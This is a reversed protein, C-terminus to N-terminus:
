LFVSGQGLSSLRIKTTICHTPTLSMLALHPSSPLPQECFNSLPPMHVTEHSVTLYSKQGELYKQGGKKKFFTHKNGSFEFAFLM